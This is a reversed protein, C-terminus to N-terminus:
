RPTRASDTWSPPASKPRSRPCCSERISSSRKPSIPKSSSRDLILFFEDLEVLNMDLTRLEPEFQMMINDVLHEPIKLAGLTIWKDPRRKEERNKAMFTLFMKEDILDKCMRRFPVWKQGTAEDYLLMVNPWGETVHSISCSVM